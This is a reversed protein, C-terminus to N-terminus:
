PRELKGKMKSRRVILCRAIRRCEKSCYWRFEGRGWLKTFPKACTRCLRENIRNIFRITSSSVGLQKYSFISGLKENPDHGLWIGFRGLPRDSSSAEIM